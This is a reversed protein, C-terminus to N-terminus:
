GQLIIICDILLKQLSVISLSKCFLEEKGIEEAELYM